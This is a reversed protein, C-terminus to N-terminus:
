RYLMNDIFIGYGKTSDDVFVHTVAGIIKGNQIIPCGSMGQVIGNTLDLLEDSKVEFTINKTENYNLENIYIEYDKYENGKYFRVFAKGSEVDKMHGVQMMELNYEEVFCDLKTGYVGKVSNDKIDGIFNERKYDISGVLEGPKGKEGKVIAIIKAKYVFGKELNIAKGKNNDSIGHGLAAFDGNSDIYTVTGIGQTDDKVWLGLMYDGTVAKVPTLKIHKKDGERLVQIDLEKGESNKIVNIMDKKSHLIEDNIALIYDGKYIKDECPTIKIGDYQTITQIGDVYVGDFDLYLGVQFGGPYVYREESNVFISEQTKISDGKFTLIFLIIIAIYIYFFRNLARKM